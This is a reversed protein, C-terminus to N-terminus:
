DENGRMSSIGRLATTFGSLVPNGKGELAVNAGSALAQIKAEREIDRMATSLEQQRQSLNFNFELINRDATLNEQAISANRRSENIEDDLRSQAEELQFSLRLRDLIGTIQVDKRVEETAGGSAVVGAGAARARAAGMAKETKRQDQAFIVAAQQALLDTNKEYQDENLKVASLLSSEKINLDARDFDTKEKLALVAEKDAVEELEGMERVFDIQEYAGAAQANIADNRARGARYETYAGLGTAVLAAVGWGLNSM